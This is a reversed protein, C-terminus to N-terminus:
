IKGLVFNVIAAALAVVLLGVAAYIIMKRAEAVKTSEGGSLVYRFGAIVIMLFALAGVIVFVINLVNTITQQNAAAHPLTDSCVLGTTSGHQCAVAFLFQTIMM